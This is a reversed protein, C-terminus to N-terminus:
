QLLLEKLKDHTLTARSADFLFSSVAQFVAAKNFEELKMLVALVQDDERLFSEKKEEARQVLKPWVKFEAFLQAELEDKYEKMLDLDLDNELQALTPSQIAHKDRLRQVSKLYRADTCFQAGLQKVFDGPFLLANKPLKEHRREKFSERVYKEKKNTTKKRDGDGSVFGHHKLVFGEPQEGGLLSMTKGETIEQLLRKIVPEPSALPEKQKSNDFFVPASLVGIRGGEQELEDPSLYRGSAHDTVDYLVCYKPPLRAYFVRNHRQRAICEMHYTFAPNLKGSAAMVEFVAIAKAFMSDDRDKIRAHGCMYTAQKDTPNFRVSFQSGDMKEQIFWQTNKTWDCKNTPKGGRGHEISPFAQPEFKKQDEDGAVASAALGLTVLMSTKDQKKPHVRPSLFSSRLAKEATKKGFFFFSTGGWLEM